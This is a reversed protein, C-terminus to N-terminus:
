AHYQNFVTLHALLILLISRVSLKKAFRGDDPVSHLLMNGFIGKNM